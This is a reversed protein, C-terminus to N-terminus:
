EAALRAKLIQIRNWGTQWIETFAALQFLRCLCVYSAIGTTIEALVVFWPSQFPLLGALYVSIGMLIAVILYPVLDRLQERLSYGILVGTYYSNLYYSFVSMVIMGYIMAPIGWRWTVAINIVVLSKKIIELRLFLDSRGLAQLLNLNIVHLPYLLELICLLQLYGVSEVWKETLLALVLPRAIVALGVMMPFNIFVLSTLARKLGSKLRAPDDQITSFVPFTVRGVMGSLTHSPLGGITQARSFFGLDRASFLKGIVLLYINEFIQNLLGSALMRSGFVFM